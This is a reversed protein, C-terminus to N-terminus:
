MTPKTGTPWCRMTNTGRHRPVEATSSAAQGKM